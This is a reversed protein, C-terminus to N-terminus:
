ASSRHPVVCYRDRVSTSCVMSSCQVFQCCKISGVSQPGVVHFHSTVQKKDIVIVNVSVIFYSLKSM